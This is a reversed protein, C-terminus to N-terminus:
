LGQQQETKKNWKVRRLRIIGAAARDEQAVKSKKRKNGRSISKKKNGKSKKIKNGSSSSKKKDWKVRRLRIIGAAAREEQEM